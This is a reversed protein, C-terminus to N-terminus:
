LDDEESRLVEKALAKVVHERAREALVIRREAERKWAVMDGFAVRWCRNGQYKKYPCENCRSEELEDRCCEHLREIKEGIDCFQKQTM